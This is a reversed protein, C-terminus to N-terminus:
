LFFILIKEFCNKQIVKVEIRHDLKHLLRFGGRIKIFKCFVYIFNEDSVHLARDKLISLVRYVICLDKRSKNLRDLAHM